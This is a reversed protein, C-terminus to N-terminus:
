PRVDRLAEFATKVLLLARTLEKAMPVDRATGEANRRLASLRRGEADLEASAHVAARWRASNAASMDRLAPMTTCLAGPAHLREIAAVYAELRRATEGASEAPMPRSIRAVYAEIREDPRRLGTDEVIARRARLLVGAYENIRTQTVGAAQACGAAAALAAVITWTCAIPVPRPFIM